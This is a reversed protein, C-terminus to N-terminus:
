VKRPLDCRRSPKVQSLANNKKGTQEYLKREIINKRYTPDIAYWEALYRKNAPFCHVPKGNCTVIWWSQSDPPGNRVSIVQYLGAM